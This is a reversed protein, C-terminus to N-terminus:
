RMRIFSYYHGGSAQGSHVVIGRLRYHTSVHPEPKDGPIKNDPNEPIPIEEGSVFCMYMYMILYNLCLLCLVHVHTCPLFVCTCTCTYICHVHVHICMYLIYLILPEM